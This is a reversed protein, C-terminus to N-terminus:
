VVLERRQIEQSLQNRMERTLEHNSADNEGGKFELFQLTNEDSHGEPHLPYPISQMMQILQEKNFQSLDQDKWPYLAPRDPGSRRTIVNDSVQGSDTINELDIDSYHLVKQM